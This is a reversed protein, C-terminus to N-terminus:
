GAVTMNFLWGWEGQYPVTKDFSDQAEQPAPAVLCVRKGEQMPAGGGRATPMM